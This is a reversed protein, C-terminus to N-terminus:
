SSAFQGKDGKFDAKRLHFIKVYEGKVADVGHRQQVPDELVAPAHFNHLFVPSLPFDFPDAEARVPWSWYDSCGNGGVFEVADVDM